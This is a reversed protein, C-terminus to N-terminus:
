MARVAEVPNLRLAKYAPYLSSLIATLVVSLAVRSYFSSEIDPYVVPNMGLMELSDEIGSLDIGIHGFISVLSFGLLLGLIGGVISLFLTELMIMFFIKRRNMGISMLMGLEQRRELIAMLMTNIIGFALALMIILLFIQMVAEFSEFFLRLDPALTYWDEVLADPHGSALMNQFSDVEESDQLLLAIEHVGKELNLIKRLDSQRVFVERTDYQSSVTKFIGAIRFAGSVIEGQTDQFTLVVKNKLKVQLKEALKQGILIPNRRVDEFYAGEMLKSPLQTVAAETKPLVGQIRVGTGAKASSIMGGVILRGTASKVRADNQIDQLITEGSALLYKVEQDDKFQPHHIQIHSIETEIRNQARQVSMGWSFSLLFIGGAIGLMIALIVVMSRTRNRWVNKWSISSLM